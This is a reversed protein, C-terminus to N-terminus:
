LAEIVRALVGVRDGDIGNATAGVEAFVVEELEAYSGEKLPRHDVFELHESVAKHRVVNVQQNAAQSGSGPQLRKHLLELLDGSVRELVLVSRLKPVAAVMIAHQPLFSVNV